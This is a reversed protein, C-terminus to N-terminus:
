HKIPPAAQHQGPMAFRADEIKLNAERSTIKMQQVLKGEIFSEITFPFLVGNVERFDTFVSEIPVENGNATRNGRWRVPLYNEADLEWYHVNGNVLTVRLRYTKRGNLEGVGVQEIANGKKKYDILPGDFDAQESMSRQQTQDMVFAQDAGPTIQWGGNGDYAQVVNGNPLHVEVRLKNPRALEATFPGEMEPGFSITGTERRTQIAKIKEIGGRATIMRGILEDVTQASSSVTWGLVLMAILLSKLRSM